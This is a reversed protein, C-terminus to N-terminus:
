TALETKKLYNPDFETKNTAIAFAQRILKNAVAILAQKGPKGKAKLREYLDQCAPNSRLSSKACMYLKSRIGGMGMKTIRSKGKVSTGSEFVRPTIGIYCALAKASPFRTFGDTISILEVSTRDGIGVITCLRKRMKPFATDATANLSKELEAIADELGKLVDELAKKAGKSPRPHAAIAELSNKTQTRQKTLQELATQQQQLDEAGKSRAVYLAPKMTEGYEQIRKADVKDTKTRSLNMLAFRSTSLPNIVCVAIEHRLLYDVLKLYYPGTAEMVCIAQDPLLSRFREFGEEDNDFCHLKPRSSARPVAVDFTKKSMDIGIYCGM